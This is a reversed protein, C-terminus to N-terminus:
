PRLNSASSQRIGECRPALAVYNQDVIQLRQREKELRDLKTTDSDLVRGMKFFLDTQDWVGTFLSAGSGEASIPVPSATHDHTRFGVALRYLSPSAALLCLLSLTKPM